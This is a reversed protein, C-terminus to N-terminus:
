FVVVLNSSVDVQVCLLVGSSLIGHMAVVGV